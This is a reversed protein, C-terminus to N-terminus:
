KKRSVIFNDFQRLQETKQRQVWDSLDFPHLNFPDNVDNIRSIKARKEYQTKLGFAANLFEYVRMNHINDSM